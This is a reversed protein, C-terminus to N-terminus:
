REHIFDFLDESLCFQRKSAASASLRRALVQNRLFECGMEPMMEDAETISYPRIWGALDAACIVPPSM